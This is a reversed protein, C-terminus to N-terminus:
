LLVFILNILILTAYPFMITPRLANTLYELILGKSSPRQDQWTTYLQFKRMNSNESPPIDINREILLLRKSLRSQFTKWIAEQLWVTLLLLVSIVLSFDFIISICCVTVATLKIILSYREYNEHEAHLIQWEQHWTSLEKNNM